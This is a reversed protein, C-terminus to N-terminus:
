TACVASSSPFTFLRLTPAAGAWSTAAAAAQGELAGKRWVCAPSVALASLAQRAEDRMSCSGAQGLPAQDHLPGQALM